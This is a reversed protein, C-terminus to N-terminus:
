KRIVDRPRIGHYWIPISSSNILPAQVLFLFEPLQYISFFFQSRNTTLCDSSLCHYCLLVVVVIPPCTLSRPPKQKKKEKQSQVVQHSIQANVPVPRFKARCVEQFRCCSFVTQGALRPDSKQSGWIFLYIIMEFSFYFHTDPLLSLSFLGFCVSPATMMM